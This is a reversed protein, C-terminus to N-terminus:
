RFPWRSRRAPCRCRCTASGCAHSRAWCSCSRPSARAARTPISRCPTPGCSWRWCWHSRPSLWARPRVLLGLVGALGLMVYLRLEVPLTWLSGNAAHPFPNDPFAGPLKDVVDIGSATRVFYRWTVPSGLYDAWSLASSAGAVVITFVTAAVLAPYIRLVRAMAFAKLSPHALWSQTALFGSLM